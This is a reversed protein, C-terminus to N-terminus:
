QLPSLNKTENVSSIVLALIIQSGYLSELASTELKLGADGAGSHRATLTYM